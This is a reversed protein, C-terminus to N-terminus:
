QVAFLYISADAEHAGPRETEEQMLLFFRSLIERVAFEYGAPEERMQDIAKLISGIMHIRRASDSRLHLASLNKSRLIPAFYKRDIYSGFEGALFRADFIFSYYNVQDPFDYAHMINRNIFIVDGPRAEVEQDTTYMKLIGSDVYNLEIWDHWHWPIHNGTFLRSEDYYCVFPLGGSDESLLEESNDKLTLNKKKYCIM